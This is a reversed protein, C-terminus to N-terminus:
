WIYTDLRLAVVLGLLVLVAGLPRGLRRGWPVNKEVAMLLGLGLMWGLNAAGFPLMLLMLAWCCGICFLGHHFGLALAQRAHDTGSWHEMVFVFPSRCKDLCRYKIASFQYVGGLLLTGAGLVWTNASLWDSSATVARLALTGGYAAAGVAAWTLLYGVVVLAVLLPRDPRSRAVQAFIGLLPISTPLMMAVTMLMWGTLFVLSLTVGSAPPAHLHAQHIYHVYPSPGWQWLAFWALGSLVAILM